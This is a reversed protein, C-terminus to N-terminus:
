VGVGLNSVALGLIQFRLRFGLGEVRVGFGSVRFGGGQVRLV